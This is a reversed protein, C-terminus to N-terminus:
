LVEHERRTGALRRVAVADDAPHEGYAPLHAEEDVDGRAEVERTGTVLDREGRVAREEARRLQAEADRGTARELDGAAAVDAGADGHSGPLRGGEHEVSDLGALHRHRVGIGVDG